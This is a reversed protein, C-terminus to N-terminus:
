HDNKLKERLETVTPRGKSRFYADLASIVIDHPRCRELLAAEKVQIMADEPLYLSTEVIGPKLRQRAQKPKAKEKKPSISTDRKESTKHRRTPQASDLSDLAGELASKRKSSM